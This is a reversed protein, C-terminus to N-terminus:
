LPSLKYNKLGHFILDDSYVLECHENKISGMDKSSSLLSFLQKGNGGIIILLQPECAISKAQKISQVIMGLTAAWIANNVNDSSNAGFSLQVQRKQEAKVEATDVLLSNFMMGIGPLIWGGKHQGNGHLCDVTTATGADVVILNKEPYLTKAGLLALWRDAGLQKPIQYFSTLGFGSKESSIQKLEIHHNDCWQQILTVLPAQAVSVLYIVDNNPLNNVRKKQWNNELWTISLESNLIVRPIDIGLRDHHIYKTRTNGIDVFLM